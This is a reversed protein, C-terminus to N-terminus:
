QVSAIKKNPGFGVHLDRLLKVREHAAHDQSLSDLFVKFEASEQYPPKESLYMTLDENQAQWAMSIHRLQFGSWLWPNAVDETYKAVAFSAMNNFGLANCFQKAYDHDTCTTGAIANYAKNKSQMTWKGGPTKTVFGTTRHTPESELLRRRAQLAEYSADIEEQDYDHLPRAAVDHHSSASAQVIHAHSALFSCDRLWPLQELADEDLLDGSAQEADDTKDKAVKALHQSSTLYPCPRM